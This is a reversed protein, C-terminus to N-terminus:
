QIENMFKKIIKKGDFAIINNFDHTRVCQVALASFASAM